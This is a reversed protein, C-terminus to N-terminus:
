KNCFKLYDIVLSFLNNPITLHESKSKIFLLEQESSTPIWTNSTIEKVIESSIRELITVKTDDLIFTYSNQIPTLYAKNVNSKLLVNLYTNNVDKYSTLFTAIFCHGQQWLVIKAFVLLEILKKVEIYYMARPNIYKHFLWGLLIIQSKHIKNNMLAHARVLEQKYLNYDFQEIGLTSLIAPINELANQLECIVGISIDSTKRYDEFYSVDEKDIDNKTIKSRIIENDTANFNIKFKITQFVFSIINNKKNYFDITILKIFIIEAIDNDTIDDSSIGKNVIFHEPKNNGEIIKKINDVYERLKNLEESENLESRVFLMFIKYYFHDTVHRIYNYYHIYLPISARMILILSILHIYEPKTYTKEKTINMDPDFVFEDLINEPVYLKDQEWYIWKKFNSLNFLEVTRAVKYELKHIESPKLYKIDDKEEYSQKFIDFIEENVELPLTTLYRNISSFLTDIYSTDKFFDSLDYQLALDNFIVNLIHSGYETKTVEYRLFHM